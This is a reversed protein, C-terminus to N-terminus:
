SAGIAAANLKERLPALLLECYSMRTEHMSEEAASLHHRALDAAEGRIAIDAALAHAYAVIMRAGLSDYEALAAGLEQLGEAVEGNMGKAWGRVIGAWARWYPYGRQTALEIALDGYRLANPIDGNCQYISAAFCLAYGESFPHKARRAVATAREIHEVAIRPQGVFCTSNGSQKM